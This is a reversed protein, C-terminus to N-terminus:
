PIILSGTRREPAAKEAMSNLLDLYQRSRPRSNANVTATVTLFNLVEVVESVKLLEMPGQPQLVGDLLTKLRRFLSAQISSEPVTEYYIGSELTNMTAALSKLTEIVDTDVLWPAFKREEMVELCVANLIASRRHIFNRDLRQVVSVLDPDPERTDGEYARGAILFYCSSPCDIDVERRSGCCSPCIRSEKAPCFRRAPQESCLSCRAM